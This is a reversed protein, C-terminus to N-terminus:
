GHGAGDSDNAEGAGDPASKEPPAQSVFRGISSNMMEMVEWYIRNRQAFSGEGFSRQLILVLAGLMKDTIIRADQLQEPSYFESVIEEAAAAIREAPEPPHLRSQHDNESFHKTM